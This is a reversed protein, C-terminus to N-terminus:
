APRRAAPKGRACARSPGRRPPPGSVMASSVVSSTVAASAASAPSAVFAGALFAGALLAAAVFFAGAALFVAVAVAALAVLAGAGALVLAGALAAAALFAGAPVAPVGWRTTVWVREAMPDLGLCRPVSRASPRRPMPWVLSRGSRGSIRPMIARTGCRTRTSSTAFHLEVVQRRGLTGGLGLAPHAAAGAALAVLRGAAARLSLLGAVGHRGAELAALQGQHLPDRLELAEGVREPDAVRRDVQRGELGEPLVGDRDLGQHLGTQDARLRQDLHEPLAGEGPRHPHRGMCKGLRSFRRDGGRATADLPHRQRVGVTTGRGRAIGQHVALAALTRALAASLPCPMSERSALMKLTGSRRLLTTKVSAIMPSYWTPALTGTGPTLQARRCLRSDDADAEPTSPKKFRKLPPASTRRATNPRPTM